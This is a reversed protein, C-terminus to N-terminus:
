DCGSNVLILDLPYWWIGVVGSKFLIEVCRMVVQERDKLPIVPFSVLSFRDPVGFCGNWM